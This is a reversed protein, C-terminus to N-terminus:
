FESEEMQRLKYIADEFQKAWNDIIPFNSDSIAEEYNKPYPKFATIILRATNASLRGLTNLIKQATPIEAALKRLEELALTADKYDKATPEHSEDAKPINEGENPQPFGEMNKM